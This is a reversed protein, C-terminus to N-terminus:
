PSKVRELIWDGMFRLASPSITEEIKGYESPYGTEANQFLHNLGKLEKLTYDENGGAKLAEEIAELNEKPPVQLDKEGIIALVPCKVKKLAHKPDYTLFFRFWPSLVMQIQSEIYAELDGLSEKEEESLEVLANEYIIRLKKEAIENDEEKKLVSFIQEQVARNKAIEEESTGGTRAILAGQLYLIEEGPLGTGALLLIFAVDESEEAVMPAIIGGESHGILGIQEPNIEKHSKLYEVGTLVDGAFDKSTAEEFVGSSGGVGRDDMRLVAIGCRTLYDALVLFPRHEFVTENRDQAGSGSILLVTPFPGETRPLTLTGALKISANKNEYIVEEEDYPYPKKPEQPRSIEPAEEVKELILPLSVGSQKWQGEITTGDEKLKGEYVGQIAKVNIILNGDEIIVESVPIDTIGQDPSDMAATLAGDPDLSIKFVIRLEVGSVELTGQWIGKVDEVVKAYLEQPSVLTVGTLILLALFVFKRDM